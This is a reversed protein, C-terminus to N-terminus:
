YAMVKSMLTSVAGDGTILTGEHDYLSANDFRMSCSILQSSHDGNEADDPHANLLFCGEMVWTAM